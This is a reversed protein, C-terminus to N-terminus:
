QGLAQLAHAAQLLFWSWDISNIDGALPTESSFYTWCENKSGKRNMDQVKFFDLYGLVKADFLCADTSILINKFNQGDHAGFELCEFKM